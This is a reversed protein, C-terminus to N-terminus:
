IVGERELVARVDEFKAALNGRQFRIQGLGHINSFEECGDELLIIARRFGLKGQFLGVEHVVNERARVRGDPQEDEATMVLFAFGAGNLMGELREVTPLGAVSVANFEDVPLNLRDRLFDRLERWLASGGHGIVVNSRGPKKAPDAVMITGLSVEDSTMDLENRLFAIAEQLMEASHNKCRRLSEQIEHLPVEFAYNLPWSFHAADKYRNFEITGHGFTQTLAAEIAVSLRDAKSTEDKSNINADFASVQQLAAELRKIGQRMREPTLDASQPQAIKSRPAV